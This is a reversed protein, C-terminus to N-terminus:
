AGTTIAYAAPPPAVTETGAAYFSVSAVVYETAARRSVRLTFSGDARTRAVSETHTAFDPSSSVDVHINVGARPQGAAVLRGAVVLQGAAHRARLTLLQPLVVASSADGARWVYIGPKGPNTLAHRLDLEVDVTGPPLDCRLEGSDVAITLGGGVWGAEAALLTASTQRGGAFRITASGVVTGPPSATVDYGDPLEITLASPPRAIEVDTEAPAGPTTVLPWVLLRTPRAAGGAAGALAFLVSVLWLLRM